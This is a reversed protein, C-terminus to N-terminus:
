EEPNKPTKIRDTDFHGCEDQMAVERNGKIPSVNVFAPSVLPDWFYRIL